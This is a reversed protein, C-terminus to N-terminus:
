PEDRMERRGSSGLERPCMREVVELGRERAYRALEAPESTDAWPALLVLCRRSVARDLTRPDVLWMWEPRHLDCAYGYRGGSEVPDRSRRTAPRGCLDCAPGPDDPQSAAWEVMARDRARLREQWAETTPDSAFKEATWRWTKGGCEMRNDWLHVGGSRRFIARAIPLWLDSLGAAIGRALDPPGGLEGMVVVSALPLDAIARLIEGAAWWRVGTTAALEISGAVVLVTM